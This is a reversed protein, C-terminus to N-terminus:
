TIFINNISQLCCLLLNESYLMQYSINFTSRGVRVYFFDSLGKKIIFFIPMSYPLSIYKLEMTICQFTSSIWCCFLFDLKWSQNDILLGRSQLRRGSSFMNLLKIIFFLITVYRLSFFGKLGKRFFLVVAIVM